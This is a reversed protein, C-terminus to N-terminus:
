RPVVVKATTTGCRLFYVGPALRSVDNSGAHLDLVRRGSIDVLASPQHSVASPPLPLVGHVMTPSAYTTRFEAQPMQVVDAPADRLVSVCADTYCSAYVRHRVPSCAFAQVDRGVAVAALLTDSVGNIVYVSDWCGCYVTNTLSDYFLAAPRNGVSVAVIVSDAAADVVTVDGSGSNACYVKTGAPDCALALPTEGTPVTAIVQNTSGDIITMSNGAANACYLKNNQRSWCFAWPLDGTPV